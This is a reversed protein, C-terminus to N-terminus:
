RWSASPVGTASRAVEGAAGLGRSILAVGGFGAAFVDGLVEGLEEGGGFFGGLGAEEVEHVIEVVGGAEVGGGEARGEVFVGVSGCLVQGRKM